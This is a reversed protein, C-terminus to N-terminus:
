VVSSVKYQVEFRGVVIAVKVKNLFRTKFKVINEVFSNLRLVLNHRIEVLFYDLTDITCKNKSLSFINGYIHFAEKLYLLDPILRIIFDLLFIYIYILDYIYIYIYIYIYSRLNSALLFFYFCSRPISHYTSM